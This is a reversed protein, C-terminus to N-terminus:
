PVWRDTEHLVNGISSLELYNPNYSILIDTDTHM